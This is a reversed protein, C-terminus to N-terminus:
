FITEYHGVVQGTCTEIPRHLYKDLVNISDASLCGFQRLLEVTVCGAAEESGSEMKIAIGLQRSPLAICFIGDSGVKAVLSESKMLDTDLRDTGAVMFPAQSMSQYVVGLASEESSALALKCYATALQELTVNYTPVGCGDVGISLSTPAIGVAGAVNSLIKQQVDHELRWYGHTPVDLLRCFLLMGAHKGSCNNHIPRVGHGTERYILDTIWPFYASHIGCALASEDFGAKSLINRVADVHQPEGNHSSVMVAMDTYSLNFRERGGQDILGLIQFPKATSRMPTVTAANGLTEVLRGNECVAVSGRHRCEVTGSRIVDVLPVPESSRTRQPMM